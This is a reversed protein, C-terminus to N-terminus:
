QIGKMEELLADVGALEARLQPSRPPLLNQVENLLERAKAMWDRFEDPNIPPERNTHQEYADLLSEIKLRNHDPHEPHNPYVWGVGPVVEPGTPYTM